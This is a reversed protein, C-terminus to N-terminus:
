GDDEARVQLFSHGAPEECAATMRELMEAVAPDDQMVQVAGADPWRGLSYHVRPDRADVLLWGLM